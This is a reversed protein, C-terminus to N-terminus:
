LDLDSDAQDAAMQSVKEQNNEASEADGSVAAGDDPTLQVAQPTATQVYPNGNLITMISQQNVNHGMALLRDVLDQVPVEDMNRSKAVALLDTLDNVLDESYGELLEVARM